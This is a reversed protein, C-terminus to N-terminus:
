IVLKEPEVRRERIGLDKVKFTEGGFLEAEEQGSYLAAAIRGIADAKMIGSGSAGGVIIVGAEEFIVPQHDIPNEAYYGAWAAHPRCGELQPFYKVAVQYLGYEYFEPEPSPELEPEEEFPRGLEDAFSLWIAGEELAPKLYVRPRPLITFPMCGEDNFGKAWLLKELEPRGAARISFLQRKKPRFFCELGIPSLLKHSWAGAAVVVKDARIRGSSTEVGRVAIDQWIFPEGPIGLPREPEVLLRRAETNYAIKGGLELFATEYFRVLADVDISGAKPILIGYDVNPLGMLEAEEDGSLDARLGLMEELESAEFLKHELGRASLTDLVPRIKKYGEADFLWLYGVWRMGLHIGKEQLHKYFEVSTHALALNTRSYFFVRFMGASKATSGQGPGSLREIVLVRHGPNQRKIHYATALGLVGAGVIVADYEALRKGM